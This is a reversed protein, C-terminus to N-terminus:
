KLFELIHTAVEDPRRFVTEHDCEKIKVFKSGKMIKSLELVSDSSLFQDYDSTILLAPVDKNKLDDLDIKYNFMLLYNWCFVRLPVASLDKRFLGIESLGALESYIPYNYNKKRVFSIASVFWLLPKFVPYFTRIFWYPNYYFPVTHASNCLVIKLVRSDSSLLHKLAVSGGFSHCVFVALKVKEKELVLGIDKTMSHVSYFKKNWRKESLGHGRFDMILTSFGEEQMVEVIRDWASSNGGLGHLFVIVPRNTNLKDFRYAVRVGDFSKLFKDPLM